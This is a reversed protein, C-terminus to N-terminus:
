EDCISVRVWIKNPEFTKEGLELAFCDETIDDEKSIKVNTPKSVPREFFREHLRALKHDSEVGVWGSNGLARINIVSSLSSQSPAGAQSM